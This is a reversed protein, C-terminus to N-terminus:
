MKTYHEARYEKHHIFLRATAENLDLIYSDLIMQVIAYTNAYTFYTNTHNTHTHVATLSYQTYYPLYTQVATFKSLENM